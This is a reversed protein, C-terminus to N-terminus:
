GLLKTIRSDSISKAKEEDGEYPVIIVDPDANNLRSEPILALQDKTVHFYGTRGKIKIKYAEETPNNVIDMNSMAEDVFKEIEDRFYSRGGQLPTVPLGLEEREKRSMSKWQERTYKDSYEYTAFTGSSLEKEVMARYEESLPEQAPYKMETETPEAPIDKPLVVEGEEDLVSTDGEFAIATDLETTSEPEGEKEEEGMDVLGYQSSLYAYGDEGYQEIMHAKLLSNNFIDDGYLPYYISITGKLSDLAKLEVVKEAEERVKDNSWDPNDATIQTVADSRLRNAAPSDMYETHKDALVGILDVAESTGIYPTEAFTQFTTEGLMNNYENISAIQNIEAVTLGGYSTETALRREVDEKAGVGFLRAMTSREQEEPAVVSGEPARAGYTQLAFDVLSMDVEPLEDPMQVISAIDDASLKGGSGRQTSAQELAQYFETIGNPGSSMANMVMAEKEAQPINDAMLAMARRGFQAANRAVGERKARLVNNQEALKKQEEEYDKAEQKREAVGETMKDLFAAGFANWDFGM